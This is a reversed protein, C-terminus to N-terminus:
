KQLKELIMDLRKNLRKECDNIADMVYEIDSDVEDEDDDSSESDSSSAEETESKVQCPLLELAKDTTVVQPEDEDEYHCVFQKM